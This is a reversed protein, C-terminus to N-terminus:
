IMGINGMIGRHEDQHNVFHHDTDHDIHHYNIGIHVPGIHRLIPENDLNDAEQQPKDEIHWHGEEDQTINIIDRPEGLKSFINMYQVYIIFDLVQSETIKTSLIYIRNIKLIFATYTKYICFM